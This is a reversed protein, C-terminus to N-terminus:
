WLRCKKSPNMTSGAPCNWATSFEKSNKLVAQLRVHNPCHSDEMMWKLSTATYSECWLHAFSLFLLQEHTFETFGPLLPEYGHRAKWRKYAVIAERLGGNDAINEGLTLEGDIYDDVEVEYYTNYHNIFCQTRNSYESITENTWWQRLNGDGDYLRGSTDFGHTLEHGLIAGIAGYNLAELGLEYFPFQLIGAPITIHNLQFTHFANVDTPDTAWYSENFINEDHLITWTNNLQVQVIQVMNALYRTESLDMLKNVVSGCFLSKSEGVVEVDTVKSVYKNWIDRLRESAHPVVIDVVTWWIYSELIEEEFCTLLLAVDKLYELNGILIKDKNDLDLKDIGEFISEIFPRWIPTLTLSLNSDIIYNDTLKQLDDVLMYDSDSLSEESISQNQDARAMNYFLNSINYIGKVFEKLVEDEIMLEDDSTCKNDTGNNIIYKIVDIMYTLEADENESLVAEDDLEDLKRLRSRITQLRKELEKDNLFPNSRIPLHLYLINKSKNKPNPIVEFGFFIDLDLIKKVSALQEIYNITKNTVFPITPLNLLKLLDFMPSLDLENVTNVDMCSSFLTKAQMVAWPVESASMNVLLLDRIKRYMRNSRESFWSNMLSSDPIPHEQPWRGCAYQYFNDCPDVSENMSEKLSAAIRVCDESDCIKMMNKCAYLVALIVVTISLAGVLVFLIILWLNSIQSKKKFFTKRSRIPVLHNQSGISYVSGENKRENNM